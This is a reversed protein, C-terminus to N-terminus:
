CSDAFTRRPHAPDTVDVIATAGFRPGAESQYLADAGRVADTVGDLRSELYATFVFSGRLGPRQLFPGDLVLVADAPATFWRSEFPVDRGADFAQTQFGTSGGLLFPELLVRRLTSYDFRDHYWADASDAGLRDRQARPQQFDDLSARVVETGAREFAASLEDAVPGTRELGDVAVIRRGRAYNHTIERVLADAFDSAPSPPTVM